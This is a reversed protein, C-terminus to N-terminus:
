KTKTWQLWEYTFNDCIFANLIDSSHKQHVQSSRLNLVKQTHRPTCRFTGDMFFFTCEQVVTAAISQNVLIIAYHKTSTTRATNSFALLKTDSSTPSNKNSTEIIQPFLTPLLTPFNTNIITPLEFLTSSTFLKNYILILKTNSFYNHFTKSTSTYEASSFFMDQYAQPYLGLELNCITEEISPPSKPVTAKRAEALQKKVKHFPLKVRVADTQQMM